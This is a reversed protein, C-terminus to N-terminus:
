ICFSYTNKNVVCCYEDNYGCVSVKGLNNIEIYFKESSQETCTCSTSSTSCGCNLANNITSVNTSWSGSNAGRLSYTTNNYIFEVYSETIIGNSDLVQKLYIPDGYSGNINNWDAIAEQPTARVTVIDPIASGINMTNTNVVYAPNILSPTAISNSITATSNMKLTASLYSYGIDITLLLAAIVLIITLNKRTRKM